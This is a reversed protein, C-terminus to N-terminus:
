SAWMMGTSLNIHSYTVYRQAIADGDEYDRQFLQVQKDLEEMIQTLVLYPVKFGKIPIPKAILVAEASCLCFLAIAMSSVKQIRSRM